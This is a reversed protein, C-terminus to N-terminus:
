NHLAPQSVFDIAEDILDPVALVGAELVYEIATAHESWNVDIMETWRVPQYRTLMSMAFLVMWWAMLPHVPLGTPDDELTPYALTQEGRYRVLMGDLVHGSGLDDPRKWRLTFAMNPSPWDVNSGSPTPIFGALAPYRSVYETVTPRKETAVALLSQPLAVTATQAVFAGSLIWDDGYTVELPPYLTTALPAHITTEYLLPWLEAVTVSKPQPSSLVASLRRFSTKESGHTSLELARIDGSASDLMPVTLGHGLLRWESNSLSPAAAAVARGAQSLGYFLNLARSDFDIRAAARLQQEAQELAARFTAVRDPDGGPVPPLARKTRVSRWVESSSRLDVDFWTPSM